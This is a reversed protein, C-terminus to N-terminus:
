GAFNVKYAKDGQLKHFLFHGYERAIPDPKEGREIHLRETESHYETPGDVKVKPKPPPSIIKIIKNAKTYIKDITSAIKKAAELTAKKTVIKIKWKESVVEIDPSATGVFGFIVEGEDGPDLPVDLSDGSNLEKLFEFVYTSNERDYAGMGWANNTGGEAPDFRFDYKGVYYFDAELLADQGGEVTIIDDGVDFEKGDHNDFWIYGESYQRFDKGTVIELAIHLYQGDHKLYAVAKYNGIMLSVKSADNWEDGIVGDLLEDPIFDGFYVAIEYLEVRPAEGPPPPVSPPIALSNNFGPGVVSLLLALLAFRLTKRVTM